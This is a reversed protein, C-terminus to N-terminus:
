ESKGATRKLSLILLVVGAGVLMHGIGAMGSISADMGRSLSTGLVETIGRVLMMLVTLILGPHYVWSFVRFLKTEELRNHAAFLSIVLFVLMGLVFLHTHVKSLATVGTFDKAKTFERYFVGGAMAAIAYVLAVNLYKKM